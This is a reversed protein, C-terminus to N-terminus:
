EDGWTWPAQAPTAGSARERRATALPSPLPLPVLAELNEILALARLM